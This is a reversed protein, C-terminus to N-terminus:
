VKVDFLKPFSQNKPPQLWNTKRYVCGKTEVMHFTYAHRPKDSTNKASRHLVQGHILVLSGKKCPAPVWQEEPFTPYEDGEFVLMSERCDPDSMDYLPNRVMHKTVPSVKKHSGPVFWLCGNDLTADDIPFWYGVLKLPDNRLFTGDQHPTVVGGIKPNKFIYMGQVVNPDQFQLDRAVAKMKDSFTVAKFAPELYHLAHGIKNLSAHKDMRLDGSSAEFADAEFFFRIKDNSELFYSDNTQQDNKSANGSFVGRHVAPDMQQVLNWCGKRMSEVEESSLFDEVVLIGDREYQEIQDKTLGLQKM